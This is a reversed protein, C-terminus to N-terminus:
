WIAAFDFITLHWTHEFINTNDWNHFIIQPSEAAYLINFVKIIIGMIDWEQFQKIQKCKVSTTKKVSSYLCGSDAM